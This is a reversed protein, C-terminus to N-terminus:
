QEDTAEWERACWKCSHPGDHQDELRCVCTIRGVDMKSQDYCGIM